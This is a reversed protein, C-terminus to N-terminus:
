MRPDDQLPLADADTAALNVRVNKFSEIEELELVKTLQRKDEATGTQLPDPCSTVPSVVGDLWQLLPTSTSTKGSPEMVVDHLHTNNESLEALGQLPPADQMEVDDIESEIPPLRTGFIQEDNGQQRQIIM